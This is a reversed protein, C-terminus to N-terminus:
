DITAPSAIQCEVLPANSPTPQAIQAIDLWYQTQLATEPLLAAEIGAAKVTALKQEANERQRFNGFAVQGRWEGQTLTWAKLQRGRAQTLM